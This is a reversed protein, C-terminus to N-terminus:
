EMIAAIIGAVEEVLENRAKGAFEANRAIWDLSRLQNALVVGSVRGPPPIRVEFPSDKSRSTVPCVFALGTAVNHERHSIVLGPRRGGQETGAHPTFDLYVFDGRSPQYSGVM